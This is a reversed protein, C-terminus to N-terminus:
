FHRKQQTIVEFHKNLPSPLPHNKTPPFLFKTSPSNKWTCPPHAFNQSTLPSGGMGGTPFVRYSKPVKQTVSYITYIYIYIYLYIYIYIYM